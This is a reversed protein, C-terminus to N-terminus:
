LSVESSEGDTLDVVVEEEDADGEDADGEDADGEDSEGGSDSESDGHRKGRHRTQDNVFFKLGYNLM